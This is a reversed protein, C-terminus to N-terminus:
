KLFIGIKRLQPKVTKLDSTGFKIESARFDGTLYVPVLQDAQTAEEATIGYVDTLNEATIKEIKESKLAVVTNKEIAEKAKVSIVEVPFDGAYLNGPVYNGKEIKYM